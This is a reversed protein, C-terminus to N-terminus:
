CILCKWMTQLLFKSVLEFATYVAVLGVKEQPDFM